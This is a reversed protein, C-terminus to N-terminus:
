EIRINFSISIRDEESNNEEVGHKLWSPFLYCRKEIVKHYVFASTHSNYEKWYHGKWDYELVESPHVFWIKGCNEPTKLYLVGSMFCNPHGHITNYAGKPSINIWMNDLFTRHIKSGNLHEFYSQSANCVNQAIDSLPNPFQLDTSQFGKRNSVTRGNSQSKMEYCYNKAKELDFELDTSAVPVTFINEINMEPM